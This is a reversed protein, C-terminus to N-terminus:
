RLSTSSACTAIRAAAIERQRIGTRGNKKFLEALVSEECLPIWEPANMGPRLVLAAYRITDTWKKDYIRFSVFEIAAENRQLSKQVSQWNDTLDTQFERFATSSRTISKELTEAQVELSQIYAKDSGGKQMLASIQQRLNGLEEFQTILIQDGSGYIADRVANTTRLLLGKTFLVNDYNM